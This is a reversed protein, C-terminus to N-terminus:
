ETTLETPIAYSTNMQRADEKMAELLGQLTNAREAARKELSDFVAAQSPYTAKLRHVVRTWRLDFLMTLCLWHRASTWANLKHLIKDLLTHRSFKHLGITRVKAAEMQEPTRAPGKREMEWVQYLTGIDELIEDSHKDFHERQNKALSAADRMMSSYLALLGSIFHYGVMIDGLPDNPGIAVKQASEQAM